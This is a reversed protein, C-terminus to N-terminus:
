LRVRSNIYTSLRSRSTSLSTCVIVYIVRGSPGYLTPGKTTSVMVQRLYWLRPRKRERSEELYRAEGILTGDANGDTRLDLKTVTRTPGSNTIVM